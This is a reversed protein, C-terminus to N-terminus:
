GADGRYLGDRGLAADFRPRVLRRFAMETVFSERSRAALQAHRWREEAVTSVTRGKIRHGPFILTEGPLPFIRQTLSDYLRAPDSESNGVACGGVDFVDGCFLRDRWLYSVCSPTHGPTALVRLVENGFVLIEGHALMRAEGACHRGGGAVWEAATLRALEACEAAVTADQHIHTRAVFRLALGREDLLARVLAGQGAPPDIVVAQQALLDGVLYGLATSATDELVRFYM